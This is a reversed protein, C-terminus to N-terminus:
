LFVKVKVSEANFKADRVEFSQVMIITQLQQWISMIEYTIHLNAHIMGVKKDFCLSFGSKM